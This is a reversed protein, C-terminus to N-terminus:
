HPEATGDRHVNIVTLPGEDPTPTEFRDFYEAALAEPLQASDPDHGTRDRVRQLAIERPTALYVVEPVVGFPRLLHRYRDRMARSWFSYDLVVNSGDSILRILKRQLDNEITDTISSPLPHATHGRAWAEEDISLRTFGEAALQHAMTSKGAGAPGCM